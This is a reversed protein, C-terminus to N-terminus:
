AEGSALGLDAPLVLFVFTAGFLLRPCGQALRLCMFAIFPVVQFAADLQVFPLCSLNQLAAEPLVRAVFLCSKFPLM